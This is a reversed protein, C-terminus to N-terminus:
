LHNHFCLMTCCSWWVWKCSVQATYCSHPDFASQRVTAVWSEIGQCGHQTALSLPTYTNRVQTSLHFLRRIECMCHSVSFEHHYAMDWEIVSDHVVCECLEPQSVWRRLQLKPRQSGRKRHIFAITVPHSPSPSVWCLSLLCLNSTPAATMTLDGSHHTHVVLLKGTQSVGAGSPPLQNQCM